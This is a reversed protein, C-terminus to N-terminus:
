LLHHDSCPRTSCKIVFLVDASMLQNYLHHACELGALEVRQRFQEVAQRQQWLLTTSSDVTRETRGSMTWVHVGPLEQGALTTWPLDRPRCPPDLPSRKAQLPPGPSTEHGALPTWPAEACTSSDSWSQCLNSHSAHLLWAWSIYAEISRILTAGSCFQLQDPVSKTLDFLVDYSTTLPTMTTNITSLKPSETFQSLPFNNPLQFNSYPLQNLWNLDMLNCVPSLQLGTWTWPIPHGTSGGSPGSKVSGIGM